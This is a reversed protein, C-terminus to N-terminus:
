GYIPLENVRFYRLIDGALDSIANAAHFALQTSFDRREPPRKASDLSPRHLLLMIWHYVMSLLLGFRNRNSVNDYQMSSDLRSLWGQLELHVRVEAKVHSSSESPSFKCRVVETIIKALRAMSITFNSTEPPEGDVFDDRTLEEVDCDRDDIMMPKGIGSALQRDRIYLVWWIKKWLRREEPKLAANKARRHMGVMQALNTATSAWWFCDRHGAAPGFRFQLMFMSQVIRVRDLESDNDCLRRANGYFMEMADHKSSFGGADTIVKEQCHLAGIFLISQKLLPSITGLKWTEVLDNKNVIPYLPYFNHCFSKLLEQELEASVQRERGRTPIRATVADREEPPSEDITRHGHKCDTRDSDLWSFLSPEGVFVIRGGDRVINQLLSNEPVQVQGPGTWQFALPDGESLASSEQPVSNNALQTSPMTASPNPRAQNPAANENPEEVRGRRGRSRKSDIFVCGVNRFRCNACPLGRAAADCRIRKDHCAKCAISSRKKKTSVGGPIGASPYAMASSGGAGNRLTQFEPNNTNNSRETTSTVIISDEAAAAAAINELSAFSSFFLDDDELDGLGITMSSDADISFLDQTDM